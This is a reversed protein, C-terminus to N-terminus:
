HKKAARKKLNGQLTIQFKGTALDLCTINASCNESTNLINKIKECLVVSSPPINEIWDFDHTYFKTMSFNRM